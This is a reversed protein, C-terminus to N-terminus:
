GCGQVPGPGLDLSQFPGSPHVLAPSLHLEVVARTTKRRKGFLLNKGAAIKELNKTRSSPFVSM